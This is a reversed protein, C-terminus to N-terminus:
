SILLETAIATTGHDQYEGKKACCILAVSITYMGNAFVVSHSISKVHVGTSERGNEAAMSLAKDLVNDGVLHGYKIYNNIKQRMNSEADSYLSASFSQTYLYQEEDMEKEYAM